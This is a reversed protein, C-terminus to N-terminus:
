ASHNCNIEALGANARTTFRDLIHRISGEVRFVEIIAQGLREETFKM